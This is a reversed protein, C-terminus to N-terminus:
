ESRSVTTIVEDKYHTKLWNYFAKAERDYLFFDLEEDKDLITILLGKGRNPRMKLFLANEGIVFMEQQEKPM